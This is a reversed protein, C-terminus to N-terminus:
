GAARSRKLVRSLKENSCYNTSLLSSYTAFPNGSLQVSVYPYVNSVAAIENWAGVDYEDM